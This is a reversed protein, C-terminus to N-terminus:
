GLVRLTPVVRVFRLRLYLHLSSWFGKNVEVTFNDIVCTNLFSGLVKSAEERVFVMFASSKDQRAHEFVLATM